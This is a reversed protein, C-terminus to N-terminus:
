MLCVVSRSSERKRENPFCNRSSQCMQISYVESNSDRFRLQITFNLNQPLLSPFSKYRKVVWLKRKNIALSFSLFSHWSWLPFCLLFSERQFSRPSFERNLLSKSEKRMKIRHPAQKHTMMEWEALFSFFVLIFSEASYLSSIQTPFINVVDIVIQPLKPSTDHVFSYKQLFHNSNWHNILKKLSQVTPLWDVEFLFSFFILQMKKLSFNM